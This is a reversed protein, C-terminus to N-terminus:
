SLTGGIATGSQRQEPTPEAFPPLLKILSGPILVPLDGPLL